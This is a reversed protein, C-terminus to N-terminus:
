EHLECTSSDGFYHYVPIFMTTTCVKCCYIEGKNCSIAVIRMVDLIYYARLTDLLSVDYYGRFYM